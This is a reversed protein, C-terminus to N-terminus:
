KMVPFVREYLRSSSPIIYSFYSNVRIKLRYRLYSSYIGAIENIERGFNHM